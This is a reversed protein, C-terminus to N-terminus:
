SYKPYALGFCDMSVQLEYLIQDHMQSFNQDRPYQWSCRLLYYIGHTSEYQIQYKYELFITLRQDLALFILTSLVKSTSVDRM